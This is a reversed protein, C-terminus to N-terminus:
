ARLSTRADPSLTVSTMLASGSRSCKTCIGAAAREAYLRRDRERGQRRAREPDRRPKRGARLRADRARSARNRKENCPACLRREPEPGTRSCRTCLGAKIRKATRRAVSARDRARRTEPDVHAM